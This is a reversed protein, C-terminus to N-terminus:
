DVLLYLTNPDKTALAEYEDSTIKVAKIMTQWTPEANGASTLVQGETGSQTPVFMRAPTNGMTGYFLDWRYSSSTGTTNFYMTKTEISYRRGIVEGNQNWYPIGYYNANIFPVPEPISLKELHATSTKGNWLNQLQTNGNKFFGIYNDRYLVEIWYNSSSLSNVRVIGSNKTIVTSPTSGSNDYVKLVGYEMKFQKWNGSGNRRFELILQGEPIHSFSIAFGLENTNATFAWVPSTSWFGTQGSGDVYKYAGDSLNIIDGNTLGSPTSSLQQLRKSALDDIDITPADTIVYMTDPDVTGGSVLADYEAQTVEEV